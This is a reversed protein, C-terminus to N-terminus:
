QNKNVVLRHMMNRIRDNKIRMENAERAMHHMRIKLYNRAVSKILLYVHNDVVGSDRMHEHLEVFTNDVDVDELVSSVLSEAVKAGPFLSLQM